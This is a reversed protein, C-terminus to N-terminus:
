RREWLMGPARDSASRGIRTRADLSALYIAMEAFKETALVNFYSEIKRRKSSATYPLRRVHKKTALLCCPNGKATM